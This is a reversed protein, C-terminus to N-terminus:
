NQRPGDRDPGGKPGGRRAQDELGKAIAERDALPLDAIYSTITGLAVNRIQDLRQYQGRITADFAAADFSDAELLAVVEAMVARRDPRGIGAERIARRLDRGVEARQEKTLVQGLPGIQLDFTRAPGARGSAISGVIAGALLVNLALSAVLAIRGIRRPKPTTTM